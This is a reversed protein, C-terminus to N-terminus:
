EHSEEQELELASLQEGCSDMVGSLQRLNDGMRCLEGQIHAVTAELDTRVVGYARRAKELQDNAQGYIQAVQAQAATVITHSRGRADLEIDAMQSRIASYAELQPQQSALEERLRDLEQKDAESQAKLAQNEEQLRQCQEELAGTRSQEARSDELQRRLERLQEELQAKEAQSQATSETIYNLVDQRNFGGVAASRFRAEKESM